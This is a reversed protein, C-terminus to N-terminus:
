RMEMESAAAGAITSVEDVSRQMAMGSRTRPRAPGVRVAPDIIYHPVAARAPATVQARASNVARCGQSNCCVAACTNFYDTTTFFGNPKDYWM